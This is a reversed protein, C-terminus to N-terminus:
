KVLQVCQHKMDSTFMAYKKQKVKFKFASINLSSSSELIIRSTLPSSEDIQDSNLENKLYLLMEGANLMSIEVDRVNESSSLFPQNYETM